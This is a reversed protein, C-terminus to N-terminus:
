ASLAHLVQDVDSRGAWPQLAKHLTRLDHPSGTAGCEQRSRVIDITVQSAMGIDGTRAYAVALPPGYNAITRPTSWTPRIPALTTIVSEPSGLLLDCRSQRADLLARANVMQPAPLPEDSHAQEAAARATDLASYAADANGTHAWAEAEKGAAYAIVGAPVRRSRRALGALEAAHRPELHVLVGAKRTLTYAAMERWGAARAADEARSTWYLAGVHDGTEQRMWGIHEAYRSILSLMAPRLPSRTPSAARTMESLDQRMLATVTEPTQTRSAEVHWDFRDTLATMTDPTIREPIALVAVAGVTGATALFARRDMQVIIVSGDPQTEFVWAFASDSRGAHASRKACTMLDLGLVDGVARLVAESPNDREDRELQSLYGKNVHARRAVEGLSLDRQLRSQRMYTGLSMDNM